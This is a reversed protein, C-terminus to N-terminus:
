APAGQRTRSIRLVVVGLVVLIAGGIVAMSSALGFDSQRFAEEYVLVPVTSTAFGPGGQTMGWITTFGNFSWIAELLGLVGIVPRILPLTISYFIRPWSAGDIRAAEYLSVPTQEMAGLLVLFAFGVSAWITVFIAPYIALTPSSLWAHTDGLGIAGTISDIVGSTPQFASAWFVSVAAIPAIGPLFWIVRYIRSGKAGFSVAAAMLAAIIMTGATCLVSYKLTLWLTSSFGGAFTQRYNELGVWAIPGTGGWSSFSLRLGDVVPVAFFIIMVLLAPSAALLARRGRRRQMSGGGSRRGVRERDGAATGPVAQDVHM